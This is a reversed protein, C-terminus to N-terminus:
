PELLHQYLHLDSVEELGRDDRPDDPDLFGIGLDIPDRHFPRAYIRGPRNVNAVRRRHIDFRRTCDPHNGNQDIPYTPVRIRVMPDLVKM